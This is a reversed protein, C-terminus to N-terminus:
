VPTHPTYRFIIFSIIFSIIFFYVFCLPILYYWSLSIHWAILDDILRGCSAFDTEFTM